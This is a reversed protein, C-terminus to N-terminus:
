FKLLQLLGLLGSEVNTIQPHIQLRGNLRLTPNSYTIIM